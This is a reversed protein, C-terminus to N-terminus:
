ENCCEYLVVRKMKRNCLTCCMDDWTIKSSDGVLKFKICHKEEHAKESTQISKGGKMANDIKVLFEEGEVNEINEISELSKVFKKGSSIVTNNSGAKGIAVWNHSSSDFMILSRAGTVVSNLNTNTEGSSFHLGISQLRAWFRSVSEDDMLQLITGDNSIESVIKNFRPKHMSKGRIYLMEIKVNTQSKIRSVEKTLKKLWETDEGGYFCVYRGDNTLDEYLFQLGFVKTEEIWKKEKEGFYLFARKGWIRIMDLANQQVLNGREDIVVLMPTGDFRLEKKIHNVVEQDVQLSSHEMVYWPMDSTLDDYEKESIMDYRDIIPLWVIEYNNQMHTNRYFEYLFSIEQNYAKISFSSILFMVIKEHFSTMTAKEEKEKNGCILTIKENIFWQLVERNNAKDEKKLIEELPKKEEVSLQELHHHISVITKTFREPKVSKDTVTHGKSITTVISGCVIIAYITCCAASPINTTPKLILNHSCKRLAVTRDIVNIVNKMLEETSKLLLRNESRESSIHKLLAVYKVFNKNNKDNKCQEIILRLQGYNISYAGLILVLKADWSYSELLKLVKMTKTEFDEEGCSMECAINHMLDTLEEPIEFIAKADSANNVENNPTQFPRWLLKGASILATSSLQVLRQKVTYNTVSSVPNTPEAETPSQELIAKVVDLVYDPVVKTKRLKMHTDKVRKNMDSTLRWNQLMSNEMEKSSVQLKQTHTHTFIEATSMSSTEMTQKHTHTSFETTMSPAEM